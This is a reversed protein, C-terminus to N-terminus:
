AATVFEMNRASLEGTSMALRIKKHVIRAESLSRNEFTESRHLLLSFSLQIQSKQLQRDPM